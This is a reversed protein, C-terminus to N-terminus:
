VKQEQGMNTCSIQRRVLSVEGAYQHGDITHESGTKSTKGWHFHFQVIEHRDELPGGTLGLFCLKCILM